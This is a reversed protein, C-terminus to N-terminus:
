ATYASLWGHELEIEYSSNSYSYYGAKELIRDAIFDKKTRNSEVIATMMSQPVDEYNALLQKTDKPLCYGGYGFGPNNYYDGIQPDLCVGRIILETDLGKM